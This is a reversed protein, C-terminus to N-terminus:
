DFWGRSRLSRYMAWGIFCMAGLALPYGFRIGLEPMVEFNMGWIGAMLTLPLFITSLITLRGIRRNLDDQAQADVLSRIVDLRGELWALTRETAQLNALACAQYDGVANSTVPLQTTAMLAALIPLQGSVISEFALLESRRDSVEEMEVSGPDGDLRRELDVILDKLQAARRLGTLSLAILQAALLGAVSGEPLWGPSEELASGRELAAFPMEHITLLLDERGLLTIYEVTQSEVADMQLPLVLFAVGKIPYFGAREASERCLRRALGSIGLADLLEGQAETGAGQVDVWLRVGPAGLDKLASGYERPLLQLDDTIQFCDIRM